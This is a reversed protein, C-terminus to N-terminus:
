KYLRKIINENEDNTYWCGCKIYKSTNIQTLLEKVTSIKNTKIYRFINTNAYLVSKYKFTRYKNFNFQEKHNHYKSIFVEIFDEPLDTLSLNNKDIYNDHWESFLIDPILGMVQSMYLEDDGKIDAGTYVDPKLKKFINFSEPSLYTIHDLILISKINIKRYVRLFHDLTM